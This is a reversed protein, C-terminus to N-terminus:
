QWASPWSQVVLAGFELVRKLKFDKGERFSVYGSFITTELLFRRKWPDIKLPSSNTELLTSKLHLESHCTKDVQILWNGSQFKQPSNAFFFRLWEIEPSHPALLNNLSCILKSQIDHCGLQHPILTLLLIYTSAMPFQLHINPNVFM